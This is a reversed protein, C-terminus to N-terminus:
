HSDDFYDVLVRADAALEMWSLYQFSVETNVEVDDLNGWAIDAHLM